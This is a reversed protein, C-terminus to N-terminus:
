QRFLVLFFGHVNGPSPMTGIPHGQAPNAIAAAVHWPVAIVLFIILSSWPHWRKLHSLNHNLWLFILVIGLPFVIGILGKTLM